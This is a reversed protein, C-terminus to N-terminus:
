RTGHTMAGRPGRASFPQSTRPNLWSGRGGGPSKLQLRGKKEVMHASGGGNRADHPLRLLSSRLMRALNAFILVCSQRKVTRAAAMSTLASAWACPVQAT